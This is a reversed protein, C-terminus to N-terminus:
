RSLTPMIEGCLMKFTKTKGAGNIGLLSFCEGNKIGFSVKDVAIKNSNKGLLYVKRLEQVKVTYSKEDGEKSM